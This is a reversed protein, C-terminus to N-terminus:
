SLMSNQRRTALLSPHRSLKLLPSLSHLTAMSVLYSTRLIMRPGASLWLKLPRTVAPKM